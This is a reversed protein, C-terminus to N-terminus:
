IGTLVIKILAGVVIVVGILLTVTYIKKSETDHKEKILYYDGGCVLMIGILVAIIEVIM